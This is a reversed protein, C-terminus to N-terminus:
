TLNFRQKTANYNQLVESSTLTRNYFLVSSIRCNAYQSSYGRGVTLEGNTVELISFTNSGKSVGNVYIERLSTDTSAVVTILNWSNLVISNTFSEYYNNTYIVLTTTSANIFLLPTYNQAHRGYQLFSQGSVPFVWVSLTFTSYFGIDKFFYDDVGDFVISGGNSSNFTPGNILTGGSITGLLDNWTTGTTPYSKTNAADLYLVLGDTVIPPSNKFIAM